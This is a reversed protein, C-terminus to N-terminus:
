DARGGADRCARAQERIAAYDNLMEVLVSNEPLLALEGAARAQLEASYDALPPCLRHPHNESGATACATLLGTVVALSGLRIPSRSSTVTAMETAMETETGRAWVM